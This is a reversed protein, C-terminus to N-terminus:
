LSGSWHLLRCKQSNQILSLLRIRKLNSAKRLAYPNLSRSLRDMRIMLLWILRSERPMAVAPGSFGGHVPQRWTVTLGEEPFTEVIGTETWIGLREAGRWQPWDNASLRTLGITAALVLVLVVPPGLSGRTKNMVM